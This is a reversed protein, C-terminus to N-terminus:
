MARRWRRRLRWAIGLLAGVAMVGAIMALWPRSRAPTPSAGLQRRAMQQRYTQELAMHLEQRFKDDPPVQPVDDTKWQESM